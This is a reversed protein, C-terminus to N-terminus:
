PGIVITGTMGLAEHIRCFIPQTAPSDFTVEFSDGPQVEQDFRVGAGPALSGAGSTVTHHHPDANTWRVIEGAGITVTAPQFRQNRMVVEAVGGLPQGTTEEGGCGAAVAALLAVCGVCARM